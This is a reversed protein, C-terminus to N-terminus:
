NPVKYVRLGLDRALDVMQVPISKQHDRIIALADNLSKM